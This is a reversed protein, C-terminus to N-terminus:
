ILQWEARRGITHRQIPFAIVVILSRSSFEGDLHCQCSGPPHPPRCGAPSRRMPTSELAFGPSSRGTERPCSMDFSLAVTVNCHRPLCRQVVFEGQVQDAVLSRFSPYRHVNNNDKSSMILKAVGPMGSLAVDM